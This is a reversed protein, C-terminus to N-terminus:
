KPLSWCQRLSLCGGMFSALSSIVETAGVQLTALCVLVTQPATTCRGESSSNMNSSISDTINILYRYVAGNKYEVVAEKGGLNIQDVSDDVIVEFRRRRNTAAYRRSKNLEMQSEVATKFAVSEIKRMEAVWSRLAASVTECEPDLYKWEGNTRASFTDNTISFVDHELEQSM